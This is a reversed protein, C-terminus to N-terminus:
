FLFHINSKDYRELNPQKKHHSKKRKLMFLMAPYNDVILIYIFQFLESEM